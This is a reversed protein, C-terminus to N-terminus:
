RFRPSRRLQQSNDVKEEKHVTSEDRAAGTDGRNHGSHTGNWEKHRPKLFRRNRLYRTGDRGVCVYSLGLERVELVAAEIDWRPHKSGVGSQIWVPQGVVLPRRRVMDLNKMQIEEDLLELTMTRMKECIMPIYKVAMTMRILIFMGLSYRAMM